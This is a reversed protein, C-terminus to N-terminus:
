LCLHVSWACMHQSRWIYMIDKYRCVVEHIMQAIWKADLLHHISKHRWINVQHLIPGNINLLYIHELSPFTISIIKICLLLLLSLKIQFTPGQENLTIHRELEWIWAGLIMKVISNPMDMTWIGFTVVILKSGIAVMKKWEKIYSM